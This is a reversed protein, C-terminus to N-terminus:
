TQEPVPIPNGEDDVSVLTFNGVTCLERQGQISDEKFVEVRV